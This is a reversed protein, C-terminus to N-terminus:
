TFDNNKLRKYCHKKHQKLRSGAKKKLLERGLFASFFCLGLFVACFDIM